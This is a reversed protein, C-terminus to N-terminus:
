KSKKPRWINSYLNKFQLYGYRYGGFVLDRAITSVAAHKQLCATLALSQVFELQSKTLHSLCKPYEPSMMVGQKYSMMTEFGSLHQSKVRKAWLVSKQRLMDCQAKSGGDSSVYVGLMRRATKVNEIKVFNTSMNHTNESTKKIREGLVCVLYLSRM